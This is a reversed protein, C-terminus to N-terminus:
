PDQPFSVLFVDQLRVRWARSCVQMYGNARESEKMLKQPAMKLSQQFGCPIAPVKLWPHSEVSVLVKTRSVSPQPTVSLVLSVTGLSGEQSLRGPGADNEPGPSGM